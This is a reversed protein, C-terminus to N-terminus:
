DEPHGHVPVPVDAARLLDDLVDSRNLTGVGALFEDGEFVGLGQGEFGIIIDFTRKGDTVQIAHTPDGMSMYVTGRWHTVSRKLFAVVTAQERPTSLPVRGVIDHGSLSWNLHDPNQRMKKENLKVALLTMQQPHRLAHWVPSPVQRLLIERCALFSGGGLLAIAAFLLSLTKIEARAEAHNPTAAPPGDAISDSGLRSRWARYALCLVAVLPIQLATFLLVKEWPLTTSSSVAQGFFEGVPKFRGSAVLLASVIFAATTLIAAHRLRTIRALLPLLPSAIITGACLTVILTPIRVACDVLSIKNDIVLDEKHTGRGESNGVNIRHITPKAFSTKWVTWTASVAVSIFLMTLISVAM